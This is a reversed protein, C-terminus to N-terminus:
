RSVIQPGSHARLRWSLGILSAGLCSAIVGILRPAYRSQLERAEALIEITSRADAVGSQQTM